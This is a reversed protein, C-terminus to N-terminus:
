DPMRKGKIESSAVAKQHFYDAIDVQQQYVEPDLTQGQAEMVDLVTLIANVYAHLASSAYTDKLRIVVADDVPTGDLKTVIYKPGLEWDDNTTM